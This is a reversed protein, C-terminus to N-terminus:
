DTDRIQRIALEAPLPGHSVAGRARLYGDPDGAPTLTIHFRVEFEGDGLSVVEHEVSTPIFGIPFRMELGGKHPTATVASEAYRDAIARKMLQNLSAEPETRADDDSM